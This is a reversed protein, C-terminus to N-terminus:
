QKSGRIRRGKERNGTKKKRINAEIKKQKRNRKKHKIGNTKSACYKSQLHEREEFHLSGTNSCRPEV